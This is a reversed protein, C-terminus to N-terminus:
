IVFSPPFSWWVSLFLRLTVKLFHLDWFPIARLLAESPVGSLNIAARVVQRSCESQGRVAGRLGPDSRTALLSKTLGPNWGELSTSPLLATWIDVVLGVGPIFWLDWSRHSILTVPLQPCPWSGVVLWSNWFWTVHSVSPSGTRVWGRSEEGSM